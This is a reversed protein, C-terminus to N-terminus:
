PKLSGLSGLHHVATGAFGPSGEFRDRVEGLAAILAARGEEYFTVGAPDVDDTEVGVTTPRGLAAAIRVERRAAAIVEPGSDRYAMITTADTAAILSRALSGSGSPARIGDFWFPIDAALPLDGAARRGTILSGVLSGAVARQDRRWSALGYPEVDVHIGALRAEPPASRQYGRAARVFALLGSRQTTAWRPEGGLAEVEIGREGLAAIARRTKRDFGGECYLYVRDFGGEAVTRALADATPWWWAWVADAGLPERPPDAAEAPAAALCLVALLGALLIPLRRTPAERGTV